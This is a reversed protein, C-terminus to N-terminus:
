VETHITWDGTPVASCEGFVVKFSNTVYNDTPTAGTKVEVIYTKPSNSNYIGGEKFSVNLYGQTLPLSDKTTVEFKVPLNDDCLKVVLRKNTSKKSNNFFPKLSQQEWYDVGALTKAGTVDGFVKVNNDPVFAALEDFQRSLTFNESGVLYTTTIEEYDDTNEPLTSTALKTEVETHTVAVGSCLVYYAQWLCNEGSPRLYIMAGNINTDSNFTLDGSQPDFTYDNTEYFSTYDPYLGFSHYTNGSVKKILFNGRVARERNFVESPDYGVAYVQVRSAGLMNITTGALNFKNVDAIVNYARDGDAKPTSVQQCALLEEGNYTAKVLPCEQTFVNSSSAVRQPTNFPLSLSTSNNSTVMDGVANVTATFYSSTNYAVSYTFVKRSYGELSFAAPSLEGSQVTAATGVNLQIEDAQTQLNNSVIVRVEAVNEGSDLVNNSAVEISVSVDKEYAANQAFQYLKGDSDFALVKSGQEFPKEPISSLDLEGGRVAGVYLGDERLELINGEASSIKLVEDLFASLPVEFKQDAEGTKSTTFVFAKKTKNFTVGSLFRDAQAAPVLGTLDVTLPQDVGRVGLKLTGTPTLEFLSIPSDTPLVAKLVGNEAVITAGDINVHVKDGQIILTEGLDLETVQKPKTM